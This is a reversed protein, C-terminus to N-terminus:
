QMRCRFKEDYQQIEAQDGGRDEKLHKIVEALKKERRDEREKRRDVGNLPVKGERRWRYLTEGSLKFNDM